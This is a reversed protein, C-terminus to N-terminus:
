EKCKPCLLDGGVDSLSAEPVEAFCEECRAKKSTDPPLGVIGWGPLIGSSYPFKGQRFLENLREVRAAALARCEDNIRLCLERTIEERRIKADRMLNPANYVQAASMGYESALRKLFPVLKEGPKRTAGVTTGPAGVKVAVPVKSKAAKPPKAVSKKSKVKAVFLRWSLLPAPL